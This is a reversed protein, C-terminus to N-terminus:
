VVTRRKRSAICMRVRLLSLSPSFCGRAGQRNVAAARGPLAFYLVVRARIPESERAMEDAGM